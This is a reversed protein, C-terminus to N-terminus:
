EIGRLKWTEWRSTDEANYWTKDLPNTRKSLKHAYNLDLLNYMSSHYNKAIEMVPITHPRNGGILKGRNIENIGSFNYDKIEQIENIFRLKNIEKIEDLHLGSIDEGNYYIKCNYKSFPHNDNYYKISKQEHKLILCVIHNEILWLGIENASFPRGLVIYEKEFSKYLNIVDRTHEVRHESKNITEFNLCSESIFEIKMLNNYSQGLGDTFGRFREKICDTSGSNSVGFFGTGKGHELRIFSNMYNDVGIEKALEVMYELMVYAQSLNQVADKYQNM